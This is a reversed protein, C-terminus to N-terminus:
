SSIVFPALICVYWNAFILLSWFKFRISVYSSVYCMLIVCVFSVVLDDTKADKLMRHASCIWGGFWSQVLYHPALFQQTFLTGPRLLAIFPLEAPLSLSDSLHHNCHLLRQLGLSATGYLAVAYLSRIAIPALPNHLASFVSLRDRHVVLDGIRHWGLAKM